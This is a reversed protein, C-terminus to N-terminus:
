IHLSYIFLQILRTTTYLVREGFKLKILYINLDILVTPKFWWRKITIKPIFAGIPFATKKKYREPVKVTLKSTIHPFYATSM